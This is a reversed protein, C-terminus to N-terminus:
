LPKAPVLRSDRSCPQPGHTLFAALTSFAQRVEDQLLVGFWIMPLVILTTLLLTMISAALNARGQLLELLRHYVPWTAYALIAAWLIPVLFSNVVAYSLLLLGSLLLIPVLRESLSIAANQNAHQNM